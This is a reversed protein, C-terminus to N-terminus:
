TELFFNSSPFTFNREPLQYYCVHTCMYLLLTNYQSCHNSQVAVKHFKRHKSCTHKFRSSQRATLQNKHTKITQQFQQLARTYKPFKKCTCLYVAHFTLNLLEQGQLKYCLESNKYNKFAGLAYEMCSDAM